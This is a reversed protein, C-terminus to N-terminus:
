YEVMGFMARLNASLTSDSLTSANGNSGYHNNSFQWQWQVMAEENDDNNALAITSSTLSVNDLAWGEVTNAIAALHASAMKQVDTANPLLGTAEWGLMKALRLAIDNHQELYKTVADSNIAAQLEQESAQLQQNSSVPMIASIQLKGANKVLNALLNDASAPAKTSFKFRTDPPEFLSRLMADVGSVAQTYNVHQKPDGAYSNLTNAFVNTLQDALDNASHSNELAPTLSFQWNSPRIGATPEYDAAHMLFDPILAAISNNEGEVTAQCHIDPAACDPASSETGAIATASGALMLVAVFWFNLFRRM